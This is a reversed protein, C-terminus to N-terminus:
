SPSQSGERAGEQSPPAQYRPKGSRTMIQTWIQAITSRSLSFDIPIIDSNLGAQTSPCAKQADSRHHPDVAQGASAQGARYHQNNARENHTIRPLTAEPQQRTRSHMNSNNQHERQVQAQKRRLDMRERRTWSTWTWTHKHM